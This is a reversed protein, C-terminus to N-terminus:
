IFIPKYLNIWYGYKDRETTAYYGEPVLMDEYFQYVRDMDEHDLDEIKRSLAYCPHSMELEDFNLKILKIGTKM